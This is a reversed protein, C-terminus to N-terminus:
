LGMEAPRDAAFAVLSAIAEQADAGPYVYVDSRCRLHCPTHSSFRARWSRDGNKVTVYQSDSTTSGELTPALGLAIAAMALDNLQNGREVWFLLRGLANVKEQRRGLTFRELHLWAHKAKAVDLPVRGSIKRAAVIGIEYNAKATKIDAVVDRLSANASDLASRLEALESASSRPWAGDTMRSGRGKTFGMAALVGIAGLAVFAGNDFTAM